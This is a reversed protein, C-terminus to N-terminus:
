SHLQQKITNKEIAPTTSLLDQLATTKSIMSATTAQYPYTTQITAPDTISPSSDQAPTPSPTTTFIPNTTSQSVTSTFLDNFKPPTTQLEKQLATTTELISTTIIQGSFTSSTNQTSNEPLITQNKSSNTLPQPTTQISFTTTQHGVTTSVFPSSTTLVNSSEPPTSGDGPPLSPAGGGPPIDVRIDYPDKQNNTPKIHSNSFM